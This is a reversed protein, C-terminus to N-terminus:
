KTWHYTHYGSGDKNKDRVFGNKSLLKRGSLTLGQSLIHDFTNKLADILNTGFCLGRYVNDVHIHWIVATKINNPMSCTILCYGAIKKGTDDFVVYQVPPQNIPRVEVIRKTM